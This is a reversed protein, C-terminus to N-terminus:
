GTPQGIVGGSLTRSKPGVKGARPRSKGFSKSKIKGKKTRKDGRGDVITLAESEVNFFVSPMQDPAVLCVPAVARTRVSLGFPLAPGTFASALELTAAVAALAFSSRLM